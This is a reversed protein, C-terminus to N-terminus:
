NASARCGTAFLLVRRYVRTLVIFRDFEYSKRRAETPDKESKWWWEGGIDAIEEFLGNTLPPALQPL